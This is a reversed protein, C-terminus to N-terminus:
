QKEVKFDCASLWEANCTENTFEPDTSVGYRVTAGSPIDIGKITLYAWGYGKSDNASIAKELNKATGINPICYTSDQYIQRGENGFAPFAVLHKKHDDGKDVTVFLFVGYSDKSSRALCSINYKGADLKVEKEAHFLINRDGSYVNLYRYDEDGTYYEGTRTLEGNHCNEAKVLTWNERKFYNMDCDHGFTYNGITHTRAWDEEAQKEREEIWAKGIPAANTVAKIGSALMTVFCVIVIFLWVLRQKFGMSATKGFTSALAHFSCYALSSLLALSAAGCIYFPIRVAEFMSKIGIKDMEEWNFWTNFWTLPETLFIVTACLLGILMIIFWACIIMLIIKGIVSLVEHFAGPKANNQRTVEDAINQPTVQEGKMQLVDEPANAAPAIITMLIYCVAFFLIGADTLAHCLFILLLFCIRWALPSGGFYQACGALVGSIVKNQTDRYYRKSSKMTNWASNAGNKVSSVFEDAKSGNEAKTEHESSNNENTEDKPAIDDLEGIRHIIKEAIEITIANAGNAKQEDFLEAIRSEIDDAIEDGGDTKSFYRRISETYHMLLEYADEDIAYLRGCFNITINKKIM